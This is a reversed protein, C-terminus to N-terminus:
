HAGVVRFRRLLVVATTVAAASVAGASWGVVARRHLVETTTPGDLGDMVSEVFGEPASVLRDDDVDGVVEGVARSPGFDAQCALCTALHIDMWEEMPGWELVADPLDGRMVRCGLRAAPFRFVPKSM